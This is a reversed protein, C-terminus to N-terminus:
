LGFIHKIHFLHILWAQLTTLICVIALMIFSHRATFRFLDSEKGVLGVATAAIAISQPSIM